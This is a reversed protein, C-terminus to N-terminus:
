HSLLYKYSLGDTNQITLVCPKTCRGGQLEQWAFGLSISLCRSLMRVVVSASRKRFELLKPLQADKASFELAKQVYPIKRELNYFIWIALPHSMPVLGLFVSM